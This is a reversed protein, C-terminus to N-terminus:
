RQGWAREAPPPSRSLPPPLTALRQEDARALLIEVWSVLQDPDFPKRLYENAGMRMAIQEDGASCRGTLMLVPLAFFDQSTRIQRLAEIGSLEPMTCDLIVLAPRTREVVGLVPLGDDVATVVHGRAGLAECVVDIVIEDDDAILILAM